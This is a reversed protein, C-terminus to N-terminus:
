LYSCGSNMRPLPELCRATCCVPRYIARWVTTTKRCPRLNWCVLLPNGASSLSGRVTKGDQRTIRLGADFRVAEEEGTFREELVEVAAVPQSAGLSFSLYNWDRGLKAIGGPRDALRARLHYYDYGAATDEWDCELVVFRDGGTLAVSVHRAAIVSSGYEMDAHPAFLMIDQNLLTQLAAASERDITATITKM